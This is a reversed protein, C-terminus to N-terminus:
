STATSPNQTHPSPRCARRVPLASQPTFAMANLRPHIALVARLLMRKLARSKLEDRTPGSQRGEQPRARHALSGLARSLSGRVTEWFSSSSRLPSVFLEARLPADESSQFLGTKSPLSPFPRVLFFPFQRRKKAIALFSSLSLFPAPKSPLAPRGATLSSPSDQLGKGTQNKNQEPPAPRSFFFFM